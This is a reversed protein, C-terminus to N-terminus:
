DQTTKVENVTGFEGFLNSDVKLKQAVDKNITIINAPMIYYDKMKDMGRSIAQYAYDATKAGLEKYSCGCTAFAGNRVFSDAGVYHPIKAKVFSKSIVIESAMVINDTPTFVADVKKSILTNAASIIEDNTNGTTEVFKIGKKRLYKKAEKIPKISNIESTSYLLGIKKINPNQVIMMDLLKKVDFADSTGTVNKLGTLEAGKPDSIGAYVVPINIRDTCSTMIQAAMTAIPIIADVRQAVAQNGIQKLTSQDGQGSYVKYNIKINNKKAIEDLESTIASAIEDLSAHDLQKVIVINIGNDKSKGEKKTTYVFFGLVCVVILALLITKKMENVM